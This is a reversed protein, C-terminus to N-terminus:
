RYNMTIKSGLESRVKDVLEQCCPNRVRYDLAKPHKSLDFRKLTIQARQGHVPCKVGAERLRENIQREYGEKAQQNVSDLIDKGLKDSDPLIPKIKIM